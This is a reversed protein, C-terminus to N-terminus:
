QWVEANTIDSKTIGEHWSSYEVDKIMSLSKEGKGLVVCHRKNDTVYLLTDTDVETLLKAKVEETFEKVIIVRAM